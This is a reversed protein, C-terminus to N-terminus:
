YVNNIMVLATTVMAANSHLINHKIVSIITIFVHLLIFFLLGIFHKVTYMKIKLEKM